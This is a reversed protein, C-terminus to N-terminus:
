TAAQETQSRPCRQGVLEGSGGAHERAGGPGAHRARSGIRGCCREGDECRQRGGCRRQRCASRRGERQHLRQRGCMADEAAGAAAPAKGRLLTLDSVEPAAGAALSPGAGLRRRVSVRRGPRNWGGPLRQWRLAPAHQRYEGYSGAVRAACRDGARPAKPSSGARCARRDQAMGAAM